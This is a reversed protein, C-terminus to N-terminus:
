IAYNKIYRRILSLRAAPHAPSRRHPPPRAPPHAPPPRSPPLAFPHSDMSNLSNMHDMPIWSCGRSEFTVKFDDRMLTQGWLFISIQSAYRIMSSGKINRPGHGTCPKDMCSVCQVICPSGISRHSWLPPPVASAILPLTAAASRPPPPAITPAAPCRQPRRRTAPPGAAPPLHSPPSSCAADEGFQLGLLAKQSTMCNAIPRRIHMQAMYMIVTRMRRM